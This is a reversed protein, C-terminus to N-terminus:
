LFERISKFIGQNTSVIPEDKKKIGLYDKIVEEITLHIKLSEEAQERTYDTQRLIIKIKEELDSESNM